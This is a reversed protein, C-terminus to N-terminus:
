AGAPLAPGALVSHAQRLYLLASYLYLGAGWLALAWGFVRALDEIGTQPAAGWLLLPFSLMLNFTAAKGVFNVPLGTVGHSKLRAMQISLILDRGVLLAVFWWPVIGRALFVILVALTALRDAIPDLLQGIRTVQGWRRALLGDLYDTAAGLALVLAALGDRQPGLALWVFVPISLLRLVSLLNPVTWVLNRVQTQESPM